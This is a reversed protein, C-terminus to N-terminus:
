LLDLGDGARGIWNRLNKLMGTRGIREFPTQGYKRRYERSGLTTIVDMIHQTDSSLFIEIPTSPSLKLEQSPVQRNWPCALQCSDCGFFYDGPFQGLSHPINKFVETTYCSVCRRADVEGNSTIAQTPCRKLCESCDGCRSQQVDRKPLNLKASLLITGILFYSGLEPNILMSNKGFWGLGARYALDRELVPASDVVIKYDISTDTFIKYKAAFESHSIWNQLNDRIALHYDREGSFFVFDAIPIRKQSLLQHKYPFLFVLASECRGWYNKLDERRGDDQALMYKLPGNCGDTLWKKYRRKSDLSISTTEVYAFDFIGFNLSLNFDSNSDSDSNIPQDLNSSHM